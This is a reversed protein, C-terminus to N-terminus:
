FSPPYFFEIVFTTLKEPASEVTLSGRHLRVIREVLSLGIGYGSTLATQQSRYFPEFIYPLDQAPIPEGHNQVAIRVSNDGVSVNILATHDPSFKCANETLNKLATRLLSANGTMTLREFDEDPLNDFTVRVQYHPNIGKVMDRVDWVVEDMRVKDTLLSDADEENIKSLELLARTLASLAGVDDLVSRITQVYREPERRSLLSVELQSQMQTLPNKLEHSVNAVFMRQLRFSEDIRDLLQNITVSLRGIEDNEKSLPLRKHRNKPFIANLQKSIRKMPQLADGAYLWGSFAVLAIILFFFIILAWRMTRLFDDGYLNEASAMVVYQGTPTDYRVAAVYFYRWRFLRRVQKRIKAMERVPIGLRLGDNSTFFPTNQSDYITIKQSPLQDAHLLSLKKLAEHDHGHMVLATGYPKTKKELRRNFDSTIFYATFWYICAFSVAVIATVLGTFRLTLRTRITM